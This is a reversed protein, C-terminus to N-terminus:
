FDLNPTDLELSCLVNEALRIVEEGSEHSYEPPSAGLVCHVARLFVTQPRLRNVVRCPTLGPGRKQWM